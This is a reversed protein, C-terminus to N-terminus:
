ILGRVISLFEAESDRKSEVIAKVAHEIGCDVMIRYIFVQEATNGSRVVRLNGQYYNEWSETLGFWAVNCCSNQLGDVGHAASQPHVLLVPLAGMSFAQVAEAGAKASTGSGIYPAEPMKEAALRARIREVDHRYSVFVLLPEGDLEAVLNMLADIKTDHLVVFDKGDERYLAGQALQRLKGFLVGSNPAMVVTDDISTLFEKKLEDYQKQLTAPFPLVIDVTSSPVAETYELQLTTPAIRAAVKEFAGPAADWGFGNHAPMMYKARFGTIYEGLDNGQDTIYCQAFLDELKTPKPTGTMITRYHFFRLLKKLFKWRKSSCNKMKTSEDLALMFRGTALFDLASQAPSIGMKSQLCWEKLLLAEYNMLYIDVDKRMAGARDGHVTTYTLDSFDSWKGLESPWSTTIVRLPALVLLKDVRGETKLEQFAKLM